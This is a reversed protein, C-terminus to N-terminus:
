QLQQQQQIKYYNEYKDLNKKLKMNENYLNQYGKKKKTAQIIKSFENIM